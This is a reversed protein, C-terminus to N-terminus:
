TMRDDRRTAVDGLPMPGVQQDPNSPSLLLWEL